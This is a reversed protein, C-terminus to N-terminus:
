VRRFEMGFMPVEYHSGPDLHWNTLEDYLEQPISTNSHSEVVLQMYEYLKKKVIPSDSSVKYLQTDIHRFGYHEFELKLADKVGLWKSTHLSSRSKQFLETFLPLQGNDKGQEQDFDLILLTSGSHMHEQLWSAFHQKDQIHLIVLRALVYDYIDSQPMNEYSTPYFSVRDTRRGTTRQYIDHDHEIGIMEAGPFSASVRSLYEGNGSGVELLKGRLDQFFLEKEMDFFLDTTITLMVDFIDTKTRM